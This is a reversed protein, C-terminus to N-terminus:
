GTEEWAIEPIFCGYFFDDESLEGLLAWADLPSPVSARTFLKVFPFHKHILLNEQAAATKKAGELDVNTRSLTTPPHISKRGTSPPFRSRHVSKRALNSRLDPLDIFTNNKEKRKFERFNLACKNTM